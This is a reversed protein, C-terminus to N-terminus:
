TKRMEVAMTIIGIQTTMVVIGVLYPRGERIVFLGGGSSGPSASADVVLFWHLQDDLTDTAKARGQIRGETVVKMIDEPFGVVFAPEDIQAPSLAPQACPCKLGPVKLFMVDDNPAEVTQTVPLKTGDDLLVQYQLLGRCHKATLAMEPAIVVASCMGDIEPNVPIVKVIVARAEDRALNSSSASPNSSVLGVIVLAAALVIYLPDFLRRRRKM